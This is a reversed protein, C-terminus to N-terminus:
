FINPEYYKHMSMTLYDIHGIKSNVEIKEIKILRWPDFVCLSTSEAKLIVEQAFEINNPHNNLVALLNLGKLNNNAFHFKDSYNLNLVADWELVKEFYNKFLDKIEINTSNRTDNTPPNGKFALGVCIALNRRPTYKLVQNVIQKPVSENYKRAAIIPNIASSTETFFYSDKTLCPGGVGPSPSPIHSRPYNLNSKEIVEDININYSRAVEALQNSFAFIYDRFANGTVKILEATEISSVPIVIKCIESFLELGKKNCASTAGGIVQPLEYIEVLANGEVTREPAHLFFFDSGVKWKKQYEIERIIESGTGVPVTSRIIVTDGQNLNPILTNIFNRLAHLNLEKKNIDLETPLCLIFIHSQGTHRPIEQPKIFFNLNKHTYKKLLDDLEKEHIPSKCNNLEKIKETNIDVGVVNFRSKALAVAVTLGVYGLGVVVIIDRIKEIVNDFDVADIIDIVIGNINLVPIFQVPYNSDWGRKSNLFQNAIDKAILDRDDSEQVSIFNNNIVELITKPSRQNALIFRRLDADTVIGQLRKNSDIILAFGSHKNSFSKNSLCRLLSNIDADINISVQDIKSVQSM